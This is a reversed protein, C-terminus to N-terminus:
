AIVSMYRRLSLKCRKKPGRPFSGLASARKEWLRRAIMNDSFFPQLDRQSLGTAPMPGFPPAVCGLGEQAHPGCLGSNAVQQGGPGDPKLYFAVAM